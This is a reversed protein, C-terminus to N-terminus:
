YAEGQLLKKGDILQKGDHYKKWSCQTVFLFALFIDQYKISPSSM